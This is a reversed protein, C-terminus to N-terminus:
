PAVKPLAAAHENYAKVLDSKFPEGAAESLRAAQSRWEKLTAPTKALPLTAKLADAEAAYDRAPAAQPPPAHADPSPASAEIVEGALEGPYSVSDQVDDTTPIGLAADPFVIDALRSSARAALMDAPFRNWNNKKQADADKGRDTLGAAQAEEITFTLRVEPRGRRKAAYTCKQMTREVIQFFECEPHKLVLAVKLKSELAAKNEIVHVARLATMTPLGLARGTMMKVMAEEPSRVGFIGAKHVMAAIAQAERFGQPELALNFNSEQTRTTMATSTPTSAAQEAPKQEETMDRVTGPVTSETLRFYSSAGTRSGM